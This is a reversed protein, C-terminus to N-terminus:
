DKGGLARKIKIWLTEETAPVNEHWRGGFWLRMNGSNDISVAMREKKVMDDLNGRFVPIDEHLKDKIKVEAKKGKVTMFANDPGIEEALIARKTKRTTMKRANKIWEMFRKESVGIKGAISKDAKALDDITFIKCKELKKRFSKGVGKVDTLLRVKMTNDKWKALLQEGIKTAGSVKKISMERLDYVSKIGAKKLVKEYKPGIGEIETVKM